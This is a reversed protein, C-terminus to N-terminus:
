QFKCLGRDRQLDCHLCLRPPPPRAATRSRPLCPRRSSARACSRPLPPIRAWTKRRPRKPCLHWLNRFTHPQCLFPLALQRPSVWSGKFTM